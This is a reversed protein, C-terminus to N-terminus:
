KWCELMNGMTGHLNPTYQIRYSNSALYHNGKFEIPNVSPNMIFFNVRLSYTYDVNIRLMFTISFDDTTAIPNPSDLYDIIIMDSESRRFHPVERGLFLSNLRNM